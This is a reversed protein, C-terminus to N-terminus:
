VRLDYIGDTVPYRRGCAPCVLEPPTDPLPAHECAPCRFWTVPQTLAAPAATQTDIAKARVFVSPSYQWLDGTLQAASDLWVLAPLPVLRKLLGIRFHSVTVQREVVFGTLNLWTRVTGPHFDFNLPAFEVPEPSFPSWSQRRLAYRLMSKLNRKNAFELIFVAEPQLVQRVGEL